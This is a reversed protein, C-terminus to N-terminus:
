KFKRSMDETYKGADWEEYSYQKRVDQKCEECRLLVIVKDKLFMALANCLGPDPHVCKM